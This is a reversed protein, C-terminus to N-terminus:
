IIKKVRKKTEVKSEKKLEKKQEVKSEKKIKIKETKKKRKDKFFLFKIIMVIISVVISILIDIVLLAVNSIKLYGKEDTDVLHINDIDFIRKVENKLSEYINYSLKSSHKKNNSIIQIKIYETDEEYSVGLMSQVDKVSYDLGSLEIANEIVINSKILEMYDFLVKKNFDVNLHEDEECEHVCVGLMITTNSVYQDEHINYIYILGIIFILIILILNLFWNKLYFKILDMVNFEMFGGYVNEYKIM